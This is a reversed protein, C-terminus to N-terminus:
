AFFGPYAFASKIADCDKGSVGFKRAIKYWCNKVYLMMEDIIAAAEDPELVFRRCESLLNSKNAFRGQNGCIMALDRHELAVMPNPTMDYAPSLRWNEAAIFAHNRPHDDTNSILANFTMRKFLERADEKPTHSFKRLEEALAIYSWRDRHTYDEDARLITMASVMRRRMYGEGNYERDFRKVLLVDKGAVTTIKSEAATLGCERALQLIFHEVAASNWRDGACNFKAIWLDNDSSVIAKPRAGGMSTGLLLLKEVQVHLSNPANEGQMIEDATQQLIELDIMRNFTRKPAPPEKDLGFGLAGIRDDPSHLLYDMESINQVNMYRDILLRGWHDPSADRLAGFVGKLLGTEYVRDTLKLEIPDIAVANSRALYSKGYVFKGVSEGTHTAGLVFKGATVPIVQGPLTIYVYCQNKSTM